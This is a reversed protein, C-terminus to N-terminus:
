LNCLYDKLWCNDPSWRLLCVAGVGLSIFDVKASLLLWLVGVCTFGGAHSSNTWTLGASWEPPLCHVRHDSIWGLQATTCSMWNDRRHIVSWCTIHSKWSDLSAFRHGRISRASAPASVTSSCSNMYEFYLSLCLLSLLCRYGLLCYLRQVWRHVASALRQGM